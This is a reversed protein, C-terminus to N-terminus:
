LSRKSSAINGAILDYKNINEEKDTIKQYYMIEADFSVANLARECMYCPNYKVYIRPRKSPTIKNNKLYILIKRECCSFMRNNEGSENSYPSQLYDEYSIYSTKDYYYQTYQPSIIIDSFYAKLEKFVDPYKSSIDFTGSLSVYEKENISMIAFCKRKKLTYGKTAGTKKLLDLLTNVLLVKDLDEEHTLSYCNLMLNNLSNQCNFTARDFSVLLNKLNEKYNGSFVLERYGSFESQYLRIIPVAHILIYTLWIYNGIVGMRNKIIRFVKREVKKYLDYQNKFISEELKNLLKNLTNLSIYNFSHLLIIIKELYEIFNRYNYYRYYKLEKFNDLYFIKNQLFTNISSILENASNDKSFDLNIHCFNNYECQIISKVFLLKTNIKELVELNKQAYKKDVCDSEMIKQYSSVVVIENMLNIFYNDTKETESVYLPFELHRPENNNWLGTSVKFINTDKM